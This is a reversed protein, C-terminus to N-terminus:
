GVMMHAKPYKYDTSVKKKSLALAITLTGVRGIFMSLMIVIRGATSIDNTIGTSLGVTCFASVEEFVLQMISIDKDTITLIFTAFFIFTASFLFISFARNLLEFPITHKFLELNKKGRITSYASLLVLTFTSTKIGGGTSGSSAGIFMLFLFFLLIPTGLSGIDVTNFGATRTTVSQFFSAVLSEGFNMDKLTNDGELLFFVISGLAILFITSYLAINTSLGFKKWPSNIRERFGKVSFVERIVPFGLGGLIILVAVIIHLLHANRVYEEFLGNSFLSFGANNFASISHFISQFIQEGNNNFNANPGWSFFILIMGILEILFSFLFIKRLLSKSSMLSEGSFNEQILSQQKIGIGRNSFLGFFTAFSIINLGGLQILIMILMQGKFSFYTATDVVILGTVCSASISTFLADIFSMSEGSATMEPMMLLLCGVSILIIFSLIFLTSAKLKMKPLNISARGIELGIIILFYFQIFFVFFTEISEIGLEKGVWKIIHFNFFTASLFNVVILLMLIGENRTRRLYKKPEFSYVFGAIYKLIYFALSSKIVATLWYRTLDTVPFGHFYVLSGIAIISVFLSLNKLLREAKEKSDYLRINIKERISKLSM